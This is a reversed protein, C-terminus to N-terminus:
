KYQTLMIHNCIKYEISVICICKECKTLVSLPDRFFPFPSLAAELAAVKSDFFRFPAVNSVIVRKIYNIKKQKDQSTQQTKIECTNHSPATRLTLANHTIEIMHVDQITVARHVRQSRFTRVYLMRALPLSPLPSSCSLMQRGM